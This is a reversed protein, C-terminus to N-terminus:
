RNKLIIKEVTESKSEPCYYAALVSTDLYIMLIARKEQVAFDNQEFQQRQNSNIKPVGAFKPATIGWTTFTGASGSKQWAHQSTLLFYAELGELSMRQGAPLPSVLLM